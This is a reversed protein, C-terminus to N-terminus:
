LYEKDWDWKRIIASLLRWSLIKNDYISLQLIVWSRTGMSAEFLKPLYRSHFNGDWSEQSWLYWGIDSIRKKMERQKGQQYLTLSLFILPILGRPEDFLLAILWYGLKALFRSKKKEGPGMQPPPPPGNSAAEAQQLFLLRRLRM